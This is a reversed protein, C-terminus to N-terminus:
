YDVKRTTKEGIVGANIIGSRNTRNLFFTSFGLELFLSTKKKRQIKKQEEWVNLNVPTIEILRCLEDAHNLVTYWFAYISRDKDNIIVKSAYGELLLSLAISAGGVYPEVYIAGQLSNKKLCNRSTIPWNGKEM